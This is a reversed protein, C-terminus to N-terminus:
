PLKWKRTETERLVRRPGRARASENSIHPAAFAGARTTAASASAVAPTDPKSSGASRSPRSKSTVRPRSSCDLMAM